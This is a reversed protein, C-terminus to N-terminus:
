INVCDCGCVGVCGCFVCVHYIWVCVRARACVRVACSWVVHIRLSSSFLHFNIIIIHFVCSSWGFRHHQTYMCAHMRWHRHCDMSVHMNILCEYNCVCLCVYTCLSLSIYLFVYVHCAHMCIYMFVCLNGLCVYDTVYMCVYMSSQMCVDMCGCVCACVYLYIYIYLIYVNYMIYVYMCVYM